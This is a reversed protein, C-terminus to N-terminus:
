RAQKRGSDVGGDGGLQSQAGLRLAEMRATAEAARASQERAASKRAAAREILLSTGFNILAISSGVAVGLWTQGVTNAAGVIPFAFILVVLAALSAAVLVAIRIRRRDRNESDLWENLLAVANRLHLEFETREASAPMVAFASGLREVRLLLRGERTARRSFWSVLPIGVVAIATVLPGFVEAM